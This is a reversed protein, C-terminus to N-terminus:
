GMFSKLMMIAPDTFMAIMIVYLAFAGVIETVHIKDFREKLRFMILGGIIVCGLHFYPFNGVSTAAGEAIAFSTTILVIAISTLLTSLKNM